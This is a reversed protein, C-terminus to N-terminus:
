YSKTWVAVVACADDLFEGPIEAVGRYVEVAEIDPISVSHLAETFSTYSGNPSRRLGDVYFAVKATPQAGPIGMLLNCRAFSVGDGSAHVGPITQLLSVLDIPQRKAIDDRSFFTGWGHSARWYVEQFRPPVKVMRGNINVSALTTPLRRMYLSVDRWHGDALELPMTTAAFGPMRARVVFNGAPVDAFEFRGDRDSTRQLNAGVIDVGVHPMPTSDVSDLIRGRLVRTGGQAVQAGISPAALLAACLAQLLAARPCRSATHRM